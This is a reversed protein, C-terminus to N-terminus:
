YKDGIVLLNKIELLYDNVEKELIRYNNINVDNELEKKLELYKSSTELKNTKYYNMENVKNQYYPSNIIEKLKKYELILSSSNVEEKLSLIDNKINENIM